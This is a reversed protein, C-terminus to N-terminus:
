TNEVAKLYEDLSIADDIAFTKDTVRTKNMRDVRFNRFDKRLECWSAVSWSQGWYFLGLPRVTRESAQGDGRTYHFHLKKREQISQRALALTARAEPDIHFGPVMLTQDALDSHVQPPAVSWVKELVQAAARELDPDGWAKVMRAGLALARAEDATFMLPPLDMGHRVVYGVGAEGEVPIGSLVLSQIDRYITRESVELTDALEAATTVRDRRLLLVLRFLREAKHM